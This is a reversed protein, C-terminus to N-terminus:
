SRKEDPPLLTLAMQARSLSVGNGLANLQMSKLGLTPDTVRGEDVGM